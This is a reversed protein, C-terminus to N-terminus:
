PCRSGSRPWACRRQRKSASPAADAAVFGLESVAGEPCSSGPPSSSGAHSSRRWHSPALASPRRNFAVTRAIVTMRERGVSVRAQPVVQDIVGQTSFRRSRRRYAHRCSARPSHPAMSLGGHSRKLTILLAPRGAGENIGRPSTSEPAGLVISRIALNPLRQRQGLIRAEGAVRWVGRTVPGSRGTGTLRGPDRHHSSLANRAASSTSRPTTRTSRPVRSTPPALSSRAASAAM